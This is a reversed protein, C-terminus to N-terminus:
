LITYYSCAALDGDNQLSCVESRKMQLHLPNSSLQPLIITPNTYKLKIGVDLEYYNDDNPPLSHFDLRSDLSLGSGSSVFYGISIHM